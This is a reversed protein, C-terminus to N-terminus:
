ANDSTTDTAHWEVIISHLTMLFPTLKLRLILDPKYVTPGKM